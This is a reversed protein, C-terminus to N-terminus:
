DRQIIHEVSDTLKGLSTQLFSPLLPLEALVNCDAPFWKFELHNDDEVGSFSRGKDLYKSQKPFQMLFYCALEHYNKQAYEFFNEVIWLLRIVEVDEGLEEQM